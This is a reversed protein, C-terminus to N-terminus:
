KRLIRDLISFTGTRIALSRVLTGATWKPGIFKIENEDVPAGTTKLLSTRIFLGDGWGVTRNIEAAVLTFGRLALYKQIDKLLPAGKYLEKISVESVIYDIKKLSETAGKLIELESGQTDMVLLNARRDTEFIADLTTTKLELTDVVDVNPHVAKHMFLKFASSSAGEGSTQQFKITSNEVSWLVANIIEQEEFTELLTQSRKSISPLAEVWLVPEFNHNQYFFREQVFHAGIHVTGTIQLAFKFRWRLLVPNSEDILSAM